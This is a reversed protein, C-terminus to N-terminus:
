FPVDITEVETKIITGIWDPHTPPNLRRWNPNMVQSLRVQLPDYGWNKIMEEPSTRKRETEEYWTNREQIEKDRIEREHELNLVGRPSGGQKNAIANPDKARGSKYIWSRFHSFTDIMDKHGGKLGKLMCTNRFDELYSLIVEKTKKSEKAMMELWADDSKIIEIEKDLRVTGVPEQGAPEEKEFPLEPQTAAGTPIENGWRINAATQANASRKAKKEEMLQMYSNLEDSCFMQGDDVIEFLGFDYIVSRILEPDCDFDWSLIEYDLACKYDDSMRLREMLMHYVGYGAVGLSMRLRIMNDENRANANHPYYLQTNKTRSM